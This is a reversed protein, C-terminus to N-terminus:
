APPLFRVKGAVQYGSASNNLTGPTPENFFVREGAGSIGFSVDEYMRPFTLSDILGGSASHLLLTEGGVNLKFNAHCGSLTDNTDDAWVLLFGGASVVVDQPFKWKLPTDPNDSLYYGGMDISSASGNYIEIWDGPHGLVPNVMGSTNVANLENIQLQGNLGIGTGLVAIILTTIIRM